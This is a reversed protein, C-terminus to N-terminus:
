DEVSTTLQVGLDWIVPISLQGGVTETWVPVKVGTYLRWSENLKYSVGGAILLDKRGSNKADESGWKAPLEQMLHVGASAGFVELGFDSALDLGGYITGPGRYGYRNRYLSGQAHVFGLLRVWPMQYSLTIAGYPDVTGSGFFVHQHDKGDAGLVFPDPRIGGSPVSIGASVMIFLGEVLGPPLVAFRAGFAVDGVGVLTEDRHHISEFEPLDDKHHDLFTAEVSALRIPLRLEATVWSTLAYGVALDWNILM